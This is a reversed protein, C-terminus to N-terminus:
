TGQPKIAKIYFYLAILPQVIFVGLLGIGYFSTAGIACIREGDQQDMHDSLVNITIMTCAYALILEILIASIHIGYFPFSLQGRLKRNGFYVQGAIPLITLVLFIFLLLLLLVKM